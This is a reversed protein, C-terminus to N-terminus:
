PGGRGNLSLATQKSIDKASVKLMKSLGQNSLQDRLWKVAAEKSKEYLAQAKPSTQNVQIQQPPPLPNTRLDPSQQTECPVDPRLPPRRTGGQDNVPKPPNSGQLPITTGIFGLDGAPYVFNPSDLLVSQWQANADGSRSEGGLGTLQKVSEQYVPGTAPFHQDSITDRSWPLIVNNQCSSALRTQDYLPVSENQLRGLSPVTPRLDAVLGRLEPKSVLGRAQRVFPMSADIAPGSSKVGPLFDKALRRVPPFARNLSSLAPMAARETRPLEAVTQELASQERAFAAATTNFDTILSKLQEPHTDLAKAFAGAKDVYGSLDHPETGLTADNVIASNKYAKKWYKISKNFGQGGKGSLGRSYEYLLIQLNRRTDSQLATLIQDLQVPTTTQTIPIRDGDGLTPASPTGPQVDVFFNGELFIRPRIALHADKHIPLGKKDIQMTVVAGEQGKALHQVKTVKGVNVGAIRVPSNLRLNNSTQFVGQITYHHRFPIQKTFGLYTVISIVVIALVGAQVHTLRQRQNRRM